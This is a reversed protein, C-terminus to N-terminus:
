EKRSIWGNKFAFQGPRNTNLEQDEKTPFDFDDVDGWYGSDEEVFVMDPLDFNFWQVLTKTMQNVKEASKAFPLDNMLKAPQITQGDGSIEEAGVESPITTEFPKGTPGTENGSSPDGVHIGYFDNSYYAIPHWIAAAVHWIWFIDATYEELKPYYDSSAVTSVNTKIGFSNLQDNYVKTPQVQQPENQTLITFNFPSGDPDVWNGNKKSYGAKEMYETAKETDKGVPYEILKDTFEQGLFKDHLTSRLGTQLQCPAGVTGAQKMTAVISNLDVASLIARRVNRNALHENKYNFTFKQTRFWSLRYINQLNEPYTKRDTESIIKDPRMDLKNNAALSNVDNGRQPIIRAKNLNTRDAYPHDEYKEVLTESATFDTMRYLGNGLKDDVLKQPPITMQLLDQTVTDRADQGSADEYRDLYEQFIWRPTNVFAGTINMKMLGPEVANKFKRELTYDDVLTHSDVKTTELNQYRELELGVYYDEATLDEGNWWTFGEPFKMTLTDGEVTLEELLDPRVTGDTYARAVMEFLQDQLTHAYNGLNFPNFQVETAPRGVFFDLTDDGSGGSSGGDSGSDTSGGDSGSDTSGGDGGSATQQQQQRSSCGALGIGSAVAGFRVFDRRSWHPERETM